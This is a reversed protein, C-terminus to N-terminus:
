LEVWYTKGPPRTARPRPAPAAPKAKAVRPAQRVPKAVAPALETRMGKLRKLIEVRTLRATGPPGPAACLEDVAGFLERGRKDRLPELAKIWFLRERDKRDLRQMLAFLVIPMLALAAAGARYIPVLDREPLPTAPDIRAALPSHMSGGLGPGNGLRDIAEVYYDVRGGRGSWEPLRAIYTDDVTPQMRIARYVAEWEGRVWVKVEGVGTADRVLARLILEETEATPPPPLIMVIPADIDMRPIKASAASGALLFIGLVLILGLRRLREKTISTQM